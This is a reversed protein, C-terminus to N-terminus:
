LLSDIDLYKKKFESYYAIVREDDSKLLREVLTDAYLIHIFPRYQEKCLMQIEQAKKYLDDRFRPFFFCIHQGPNKVIYLINRWLQYNGFFSVEEVDTIENLWKEYIGYYKDLHRTDAPATGFDEESYKVEISCVPKGDNRILYDFQTEEEDDLIVEFDSDELTFGLEESIISAPWKLHKLPSFFNLAFAQSSTLHCFDQRLEGTRQLKIFEANLEEDFRHVNNILLNKEQSSFIHARKNGRFAGQEIDKLVSEKYSVLHDMMRKRPFSVYAKIWSEKADEVHPGEYIDGIQYTGNQLKVSRYIDPESFLLFRTNQKGVQIISVITYKMPSM